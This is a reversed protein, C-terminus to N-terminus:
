EGSYTILESMCLISHSFLTTDDAMLTIISRGPHQPHAAPVPFLLGHSLHQSRIMCALPELFLLWLLPSAPCGQKSGHTQNFPMSLYGNVMVSATTNAYLADFLRLVTDGYGTNVLCRRLFPRDMNDFAKQFDLLAMVGPSSFASAHAITDQVLFVSEGMDRSPIFGVQDPHIVSDICLTLAARLVHGVIKMDSNIMSLPRWNKLFHKENAKYFPRIISHNSGFHGCQLGAKIMDLLDGGIVDWIALYVQHSIGDEGSAANPPIVSVCTARLTTPDHLINDALFTETDLAVNVVDRGRLENTHAAFFAREFDVADASLPAGSLARPSTYMREYFARVIGVIKQPQDGGVILGDDSKVSHMIAAAGREKEQAFFTADLADDTPVHSLGTRIKIGETIRVQSPHHQLTPDNTRTVFHQHGVHRKKAVKKAHRYLCQRLKDKGVDWWLLLQEPHLPKTQQHERWTDSLASVLQPHKLLSVNTQFRGPGIMVSGRLTVTTSVLRHDLHTDQTRDITLAVPRSSQEWLASSQFLYDIRTKTTSPAPASWTYKSTISLERLEDHDILNLEYLLERLAVRDPRNVSGQVPNTSDLSGHITTNFDGGLVVSVDM